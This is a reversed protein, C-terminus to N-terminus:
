MLVGFSYLLGVTPLIVFWAFSAFLVAGFAFGDAFALWFTPWNTPSM